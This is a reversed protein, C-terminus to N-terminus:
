GICDVEGDIFCEATRRAIFTQKGEVAHEADHIDTARQVRVAPYEVEIADGWGVSGFTDGFPLAIQAREDGAEPGGRIIGGQEADFIQAVREVPALGDKVEGWESVAEVDSVEPLHVVVPAGMHALIEGGGTDDVEVPGVVGATMMREGDCRRGEGAFEEGGDGAVGADERQFGETIIVGM